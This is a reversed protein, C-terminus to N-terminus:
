SVDPYDALFRYLTARGVGLFRAAKSKNGGSQILANQVSELDLKRSPGRFSLITKREKLELPLHDSKIIRGKCKVLAYRIASQLERVNGPWSYEIMVAIADNSIGESRQGDRAAKELFSEILLPIDNKRERLPPLNIPVVSIRYYLDDRFNEREVESKLDRNTASVLRVDVSITKEGGVREFKGEQIVRLLKAQVVKPLDAVEDLFLTGGHALEFRGKKDRLAGTFAGKVHGFLESELLGEPLASCNVPVFPKGARSGENHIAAAVLEKGTGSEGQILVPVNVDKLERITEFLEKMRANRGIIGAFSRKALMRETINQVTGLSRLPNGNEDYETKCKEHVYKIKGDRLLLRHVIDYGTKNKVADNFAKDVFERDDPHVSNLFAEYTAGFEGPKLEFMRYIEDSWYLSNTVLNLEWHGLLALQAAKQHMEERKARERISLIQETVDELALLIFEDKKAKGYLQRGNLHFIRHGISEFNHEIEFNVFYTKKSLIKELLSQLQPIDWQSNNIRYFLKGRVQGQTLKFMEYFSRSASVIKLEADLVVLPDRITDIIGETYERADNAAQEMRKRDEIELKLKESVEVLEATREEVRQELEDHLKQLSEEAQKLPTVDRYIAMKSVSGDDNIIPSHSVHYNRGDKPSTIETVVHEAKQQIKDFVCWPCKEDFANIVKYCLEGAADRGTRQIMAPNMYTVRFDQSCIYVPGIMAEMMSRYKEESEQFAEEARKRNEEAGELEKIRQELEKYTPKKTM